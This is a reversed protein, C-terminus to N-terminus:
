IKPSLSKPTFDQAGFPQPEKPKTGLLNMDTGASPVPIILVPSVEHQLRFLRCRSLARHTDDSRETHASGLMIASRFRPLRCLDPPTHVSQNSNEGQCHSHHRECKACLCLHNLHSQSDDQH